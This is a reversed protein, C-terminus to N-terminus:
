LFSSALSVMHENIFQHLIRIADNEQLDSPRRRFFTRELLIHEAEAFVEPNRFLFQRRLGQVDAVIEDNNQEDHIAELQKASRRIVYKMNNLLGHKKRQSTTRQGRRIAECLVTTERGKGRGKRFM